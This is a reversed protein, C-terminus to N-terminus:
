GERWIELGWKALLAEAAQRVKRNWFDRRESLSDVYPAAERLGYREVIGINRLLTKNRLGYPSVLGFLKTFAVHKTRETRLLLILAEARILENKKELIPFLFAEDFEKLNQMAQLVKVKVGADGAEFIRELTELSVPTDILKLADALRGLLEGDSSRKRLVAQFAPVDDPFFRFLARLLSSSVVRDRLITDAYVERGYRSRGLKGIFADLEPGSEGRLLCGEVYEAVSRRADEYAPDGALDDARGELVEQFALLFELDGEQVIREWEEAIRKLDAASRELRREQSLLTLLLFRYNRQLLQHDLVLKQDFSIEGLLNSLTQRYIESHLSSSMGSMLIRIKSETEARRNQPDDTHFLAHLSTAIKKHREKDIIRSFISFSLSDFKDNGIIEEWLTSALDEESLDSILLKLNEFKSETPTKRASVITKLLQKSAVRHKEESTDKLYRFFQTFNKHLEENQILEETNFKGVVKDFSGALEEYKAPNNEEVAEMLLYPWIDKIEEGEGQLLVSYDLTDVSIHVINERKVIAAAGGERIFMKVPLMIKSALRMFEDHGLGPRFELRKIKRFHFLQALDMYTREGEWFRNDILLAHPSFGISVPNVWAFLAEVKALLDTVSSKFAPHEPNYMSAMKFAVRLSQTMSRILEDKDAAPGPRPPAAASPDGPRAPGGDRDFPM